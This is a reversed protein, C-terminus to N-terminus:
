RSALISKSVSAVMNRTALRGVQARLFNKTGVIKSLGGKLMLDIGVAAVAAPDDRDQLDFHGNQLGQADVERFFATATPGPSLCSV